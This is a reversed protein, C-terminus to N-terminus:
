HFPSEMGLKTFQISAAAGAGALAGTSMAPGVAKAVVTADGAVWVGDVSTAGFMGTSIINGQPSIDLGLQTALSQNSPSSSTLHQQSPPGYAIFGLTLPEVTPDEFHNIMEPLAYSSSSTSTDRPKAEIRAIKASITKFGANTFATHASTLSDPIPAGDLLLILSPTLLNFFASQYM